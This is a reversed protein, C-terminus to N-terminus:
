RPCPGPFPPPGSVNFVLINPLKKDGVPVGGISPICPGDNAKDPFTYIYTGGNVNSVLDVMNQHYNAAPPDVQILAANAPINSFIYFGSQNTQTVAPNGNINVPAGTSTLLKVTSGPVPPRAPNTGDFVSGCIVPTASGSPSGCAQPGNGGGGGGGGNGGGGGGCGLLITMLALTSISLPSNKWATPSVAAWRTM